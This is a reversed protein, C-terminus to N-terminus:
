LIVFGGLLTIGMISSVTRMIIRYSINGFKHREQLVSVFIVALSYSISIFLEYMKFFGQYSLFLCYIMFFIGLFQNLRIAEKKGFIVPITHIKGKQDDEMDEIEHFLQMIIVVFSCFLALYFTELYHKQLSVPGIYLLPIFVLINSLTGIVPISKFRFPPSSYSYSFFIGILM